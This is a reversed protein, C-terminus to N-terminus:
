LVGVVSRAISAIVEGANPMSMSGRVDPPRAFVRDLRNRRGARADLMDMDAVAFAPLLPGALRFVLRVPAAVNIKDAVNAGEM